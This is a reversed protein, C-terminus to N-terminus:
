PSGVCIIFIAIQPLECRSTTVILMPRALWSAQGAITAINRDLISTKEVLDRKRVGFVAMDNAEREQNAENSHSDWTNYVWLTQAPRRVVHCRKWAVCKENQTMLQDDQYTYYPIPSMLLSLTQLANTVTQWQYRSFPLLESSPHFLTLSHFVTLSHFYWIKM